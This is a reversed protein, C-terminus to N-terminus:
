FFRRIINFAIVGLILAIVVIAGIGLIPVGGSMLGM